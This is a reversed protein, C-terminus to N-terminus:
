FIKPLTLNHTLESTRNNPQTHLTVFNEYILLEYTMHKFYTSTIFPWYDTRSNTPIWTSKKPDMHIKKSDM